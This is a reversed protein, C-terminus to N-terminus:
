TARLSLFGRAFNIVENLSLGQGRAYIEQWIVRDLRAEVSARIREYRSRYSASMSIDLEQRLKHAAGYLLAAIKSQEPTQALGAMEELVETIHFKDGVTLLLELSEGLRTSAAQWSGQDAQSAGLNLLALAINHRDDLERLLGLSEKFMSIAQSYETQEKLLEAINNLTIAIGRKDGAERKLALCEEYCARAYAFDGQHYAVVGLNNLAQAEDRKNGLQRRLILSKELVSRAASYDGQKRIINGAANLAKARLIASGELNRDLAKELWYRAESLHGHHDWFWSLLGALRLGTQVESDHELSWKLVARLNEHERELQELWVLQEPGNRGDEAQSSLNLYYNAMRQLTVVQKGSNSLKELAYERITELMNFRPEGLSNTSVQLMSKDVLNELRTAINSSSETDADADELQCVAQIAEVECGGVFVALRAMLTQEDKDLLDYSWDIMGRLTQQRVPLDQGTRNSIDLRAGLRALSAQPSFFKTRAAALEIALPLGDMKRCIEAVALVNSETLAFNARVARSRQVFLSIAENHSFSELDLQLGSSQSLAPDPLALPPVTYEHEGYIRLLSRSTVLIKLHPASSILDRIQSAGDTVQEFNDLVMLMHKDALYSRLVQSLTERGNERIGLTRAIAPFVQKSDTVAALSTLFVGGSFDDLLQGAVQLALRTKGVGGSGTLTLLRLDARRLLNLIALTQTERGVLPTAQAPLNHPPGSGELAFPLELDNREELRSGTPLAAVPNYIQAEKVPLPAPLDAVLKNLPSAKWEASIFSSFKLNFLELLEVAERQTTIAEWEALIRIIQKVESHKLSTDGTGNLKNSLATPQLGLEKALMKQSYGTPWYYERIKKRFNELSM